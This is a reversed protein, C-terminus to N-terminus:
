DPKILVTDGFSLISVVISSGRKCKQESWGGSGTRYRAGHGNGIVNVSESDQICWLSSNV